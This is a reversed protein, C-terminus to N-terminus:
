SLLVLFLCYNAHFFPVRMHLENDCLSDFLIILSWHLTGSSMATFFFNQLLPIGDYSSATSFLSDAAFFHFTKHLKNQLSLPSPCM